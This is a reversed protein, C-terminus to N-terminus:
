KNGRYQPKLKGTKQDYQGPYNHSQFEKKYSQMKRIPDFIKDATKKVTSTNDNLYRAIIRTYMPDQPQIGMKKLDGDLIKLRTDAQVNSIQANIRNREMVTNVRQARMNLIREISERISQSTRAINQETNSLTGATEANQKNVLGQRYQLSYPRLESELGLDFGSRDTNANIQRTSAAKNAAEELLVNGQKKLNDIQASQMQMNMYNAFVSGTQGPSSFQPAKFQPTQTDTGRISDASVGASGSGGYMVRPNLNAEQLRNMQSQPSNYENQRQWDSLADKRQVNYREVSFERSLRNQKNIAITNMIDGIINGGASIGSAAALAPLPM